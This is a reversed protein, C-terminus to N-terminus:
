RSNIDNIDSQQQQPQELQPYLVETNRDMGNRIMEVLKQAKNKPIASIM